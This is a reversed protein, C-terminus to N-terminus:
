LPHHLNTIALQSVANEAVSYSLTVAAVLSLHRGRHDYAHQVRLYYNWRKRCTLELINSYMRRVFEEKPLGM